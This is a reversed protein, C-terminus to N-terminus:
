PTNEFELPFRVVEVGDIWLSMQEADQEANLLAPVRFAFVYTGNRRPSQEVPLEELAPLTPGTVKAGGVTSKSQSLGGRQGVAGGVPAVAGHGGRSGGLAAPSAATTVNATTPVLRVDHQGGLLRGSADRPTILVRVVDPSAAQIPIPPLELIQTQAADASGDSVHLDPASLRVGEALVVPAYIGPNTPADLEVVYSGDGQDAAPFVGVGPLEYSVTMGAGIGVGQSDCPVITIRTSQGSGASLAFDETDVRSASPDIAGTLFLQPRIFPQFGAMDVEVRYDGAPAESSFTRRYRGDGLDEVPASPNLGPVDISVQAGTGLPQGAVDCANVVVEFDPAGSGVQAAPLVRTPIEYIVPEVLTLRSNAATGPLDFVIGSPFHVELDISPLTGIGFHLLPENQGATPGDAGLHETHIDGNADTWRAWTGPAGPASSGAVPLIEVFGRGDRELRNEYFRVRGATEIAFLDVDGDADVDGWAGARDDYEDYLGLVETVDQFRHQNAPGTGRYLFNPQLRPLWSFDFHKGSVHGNVLYLDEYSDLDVDVFMCAWGSTFGLSSQSSEFPLMANAVGYFNNVDSWPTGNELWGNDRMLPNAGVDTKYVDMRGDYNVDGFALGMIARDIAVGSGPSVDTFFGNADGDYYADGYNEVIGIVDAVVFDNGVHLEYDGDGDTDLMASAHASGPDDIGREAALETFTKNGNNRYWDNPTIFFQSLYLDLEGDVDLDHWHALITRGSGGVGARRTVDAFELPGVQEFLADRTIDEGISNGEAAGVYLDLDGDRDYDGLAACRDIEGRNLGDPLRQKTFNGAGDGLYIANGYMSGLLVLDVHGDGDLDGLALGTQTWDRVVLGNQPNALEDLGSLVQHDIGAELAREVFANEQALAPAAAWLPILSWVPAVRRFHLPPM